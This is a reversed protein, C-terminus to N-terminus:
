LLLEGLLDAVKAFPALATFKATIYALEPAMGGELTLASLSKPKEPFAARCLLERVASSSRCM